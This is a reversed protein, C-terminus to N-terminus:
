MCISPAAGAFPDPISNWDFVDFNVPINPDIPVQLTPQLFEDLDTPRDRCGDSPLM